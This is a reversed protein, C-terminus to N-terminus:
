VYQSRQPYTAAGDGPQGLVHPCHLEVFELLLDAIIEQEDYGQPLLARRHAPDLYATLRGLAAPEVEAFGLSAARFLPGRVAAAELTHVAVHRPDAAIRAYLAAVAPEPGELVELFQGGARLLLGGIGESFNYIRAQMLLREFEAPGLPRAATSAYILRYTKM